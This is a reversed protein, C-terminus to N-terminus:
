ERPTYLDGSNRAGREIPQRNATWETYGGVYVFLKQNPIGANRLQVAALESDECEGAVCYVVIQEATHCVPVAIAIYRDLHYPDFLYAGPIHGEQYYKDNRADIFAILGQQRKPDNFFRVAQDYDIGQLGQNILRPVSILKPGSATSNTDAANQPSEVIRSDDTSVLLRTPVRQWANPGIGGPQSSEAVVPKPLVANTAIPFYNQAIKLGRPSLANAALAFACGIIAVLATEFLVAKIGTKRPPTTSQM